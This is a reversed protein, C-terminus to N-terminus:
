NNENIKRSDANNPLTVIYEDAPISLFKNIDLNISSKGVICPISYPDNTITNPSSPPTLSYFKLINNTRSVLCSSSLPTTNTETCIWAYNNFELIDGINIVQNIDKFIVKQYSDPNITLTKRNFFSSVRFSLSEGNLKGNVVLTPSDEFLNDVIDQQMNKYYDTSTLGVDNTIRAVYDDLYSM